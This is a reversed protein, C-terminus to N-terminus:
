SRAGDGPVQTLYSDVDIADSHMIGDYPRGRPCAPLSM